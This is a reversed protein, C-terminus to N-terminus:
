SKLGLWVSEWGLAVTAYFRRYFRRVTLNQLAVFEGNVEDFLQTSYLNNRRVM